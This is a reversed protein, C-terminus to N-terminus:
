DAGPGADLGAVARAALPAESDVSAFDAVQMAVADRVEAERAVDAGLQPRRAADAWVRDVRIRHLHRRARDVALLVDAVHDCQHAQVVLAHGFGGFSSRRSSRRWITPSRSRRRWHGPPM